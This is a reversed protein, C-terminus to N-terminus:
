CRSAEQASTCVLGRCAQRSQSTVIMPRVHRFDIGIYAAVLRAVAVLKARNASLCIVGLKFDRLYYAVICTSPCSIESLPLPYSPTM